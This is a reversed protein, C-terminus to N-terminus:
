LLKLISKASDIKEQAILISIKDSASMEGLQDFASATEAGSVDPQHPLVSVTGRMEALQTYLGSNVRSIKQAMQEFRGGDMERIYKECWPYSIFDPVESVLVSVPLLDLTPKPIFALDDNAAVHMDIKLDRDSYKSENGTTQMHLLKIRLIDLAPLYTERCDLVVQKGSAEIAPVVHEEPILVCLKGVLVFGKKNTPCASLVGTVDEFSNDKLLERVSRQDDIAINM